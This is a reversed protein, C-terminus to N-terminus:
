WHCRGLQHVVQCSSSWNLGYREYWEPVPLFLPVGFPLPAKSFAQVCSRNVTFFYKSRYSIPRGVNEDYKQLLSCGVNQECLKKCPHLAWKQIRGIITIYHTKRRFGVRHGTSKGCRTSSEHRHKTFDQSSHVYSALWCNTFVPPANLVFWHCFTNRNRKETCQPRSCHRIHLQRNRSLRFLYCSWSLRDSKRFLATILTLTSISKELLSLVHIKHQIYKLPARLFIVAEDLYFLAFHSKM